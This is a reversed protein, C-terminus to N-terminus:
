LWVAEQPEFNGPMYFATTGEKEKCVSIDAVIMVVAIIIM